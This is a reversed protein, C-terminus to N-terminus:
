VGRMNGLAYHAFCHLETRSCAFLVCDDVILRFFGVLQFRRSKAVIHLKIRRWVVFRAFPSSGEVNLKSPQCEVLQTVGADENNLTASPQMSDCAVPSVTTRTADDRNARSAAQRVSDCRKTRTNNASSKATADDTGTARATNGSQSTIVPLKEMAKATDNLGLVTYHQLTTKYDSHRMIQRAVQPAVGARALNTGLTTRM